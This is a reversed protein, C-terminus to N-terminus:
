LLANIDLENNRDLKLHLNGTAMNLSCDCFKDHRKMYANLEKETGFEKHIDKLVCVFHYGQFTEKQNKGKPM